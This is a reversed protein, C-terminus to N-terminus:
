KVLEVFDSLRVVVLDDDIHSHRARHLVVAPVKDEPAGDMAQGMWEWLYSPLESRSKVEISLLPHEIDPGKRGNVPIRKGGLIAAIAREAAKWSSRKM